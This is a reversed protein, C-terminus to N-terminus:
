YQFDYEQFDGQTKPGLTLRKEVRVEMNNM